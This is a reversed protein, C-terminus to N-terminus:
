KVTCDTNKNPQERQQNSVAANGRITDSIM